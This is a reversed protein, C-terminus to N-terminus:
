TELELGVHEQRARENVHIRWRGREEHDRIQQDSALYGARSGAPATQEVFSHCAKCLAMARALRDGVTGRVYVPRDGAPGRKASCHDCTRPAPPGTRTLDDISALRAFAKQVALVAEDVARVAGVVLEHHHDRVREARAVVAAEVSTVPVHEAPGHEDADVAVVPGGRGGGTITAAPYGDPGVVGARDREVARVLRAELDDIRRAQGRVPAEGLARLSDVLHRITVTSPLRAM